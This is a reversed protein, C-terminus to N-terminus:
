CIICENKEKKITEKQKDTVNVSENKTNAETKQKCYVLQHYRVKKRCVGCIIPMNKKIYGEVICSLCMFHGCAFEINSADFCSYCEDMKKEVIGSKLKLIKVIQDESKNKVANPIDVYNYDTILKDNTIVACHQPFLQRAWKVFDVKNTNCLRIMTNSSIEFNDYRDYLWQATTLDAKECVERFLNPTGWETWRYRNNLENSKAMEILSEAFDLQKNLCANIFIQSLNIHKTFNTCLWKVINYHRNENARTLATNIQDIDPLTMYYLMKATFLNGNKCLNVFIPNKYIVIDRYLSVVFM